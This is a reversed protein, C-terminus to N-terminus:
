GKSNFFDQRKNKWIYAMLAGAIGGGLHAFHAVNLLGINSVGFGISLLGVLPLMYKAKIPVPIFLFMLEVNPYYVAFAGLIGMIAGSAGVMYAVEGQWFYVAFQLGAAGLGSIFYLNFYRKTGLTREIHQGFMYLGFYVNFLIHFFGGHMFMHTIIQYPKFGETHYSLLGFTTLYKFKIEGGPLTPIFLIINAIVLIKTLQPLNALFNRNGQYYNM